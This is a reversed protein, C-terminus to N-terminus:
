SLLNLGQIGRLTVLNRGGSPMATQCCACHRPHRGAARMRVRPYGDTFDFKARSSAPLGLSDWAKPWFRGQVLLGAPNLLQIMGPWTAAHMWKRLQAPRRLISRSLLPMTPVMVQFAINHITMAVKTKKFEGRPQYVDQVCRSVDNINARATPQWEIATAAFSRNCASGQLEALQQKPPLAGQAPRAAAGHALRQM